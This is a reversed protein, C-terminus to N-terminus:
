LCHRYLDDLENTQICLYELTQRQSSHGFASTILVLPENFTKRMHFGWTKRLTHSGYNGPLFIENCWQKVLHNIYNVSLARGTTLSPFLPSLDHLCPHEKLWEQTSEFITENFPVFCLKM